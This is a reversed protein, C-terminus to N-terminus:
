PAPLSPAISPTQDAELRRAEAPSISDVYALFPLLDHGHRLDNEQDDGHASEAQETAHQAPSRMLLRPQAAPLATLPLSCNDAQDGRCTRTTAAAIRTLPIM